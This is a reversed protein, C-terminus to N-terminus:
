NWDYAHILRGTYLFMFNGGVIDNSDSLAVAPIIKSKMTNTTSTYEMAYLGVSLRKKSMNSKPHGLRITAPSMTRSVGNKSPFRNLCYVRSEVLHQIMLKTYKKYPKSKCTTRCQEEITQISRKVIPVRQEKAYIVLETPALVQRLDNIDFENDGHVNVVNFGRDHCLKIESRIGGSITHKSRNLCRQVTLFNIKESKTHLFAMRNVFFFNIHLQVDKHHTVIVLPLPIRGAKGIPPPTRSKMKGDFLPHVPGHIAVARNADDVTVRSNSQLNDDVYTCYTSTSTWGVLEQEARALDM